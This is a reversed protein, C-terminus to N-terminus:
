NTPKMRRSLFHAVTSHIGHQHLDNHGAEAIFQSEKAATVADFLARGFKVPAVRDNEGHIVLVPVDVAGIKSHNDFKDLTLWRAPLYPYHHAAVDGVSTIGAELVLAGVAQELALQTCVGSGISEGYLAISSASVGAGALYDLAARGDQYFGDESPTGPNSGYGRYEILFVGYGADLYPRVKIGRHGIHGANGHCVVLTPKGTMAPRYWALLPLGDSTQVTIEKMEPIGSALPSPRTRDPHYLLSRQMAFAIAIVGFYLAGVIILFKAM